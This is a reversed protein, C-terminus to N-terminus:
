VETVAIVKYRPTNGGRCYEIMAKAMNGDTIGFAKCNSGVLAAMDEVAVLPINYRVSLAKMNSMINGCEINSVALVKCKRNRKLEDYGYIMKGARKAFGVMAAFKDTSTDKDM